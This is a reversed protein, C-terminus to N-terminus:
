KSCSHQSEMIIESAAYLRLLTATTRTLLRSFLGSAVVVHAPYHAARWAAGLTTRFDTGASEPLGTALPAQTTAVLCHRGDATFTTGGVAETVARQLNLLARDGAHHDAAFASNMAWAVVPLLPHQGSIRM